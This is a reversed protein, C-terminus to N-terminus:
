PIKRKKTSTLFCVIGERRKDNGTVCAVVRGAIDSVCNFM